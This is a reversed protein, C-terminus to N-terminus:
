RTRVVLPTVEKLGTFLDTTFTMLNRFCRMVKKLATKSPPHNAKHRKGASIHYPPLRVGHMVTAEDVNVVTYLCLKFPALIGFCCVM